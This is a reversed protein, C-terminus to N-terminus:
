EWKGLKIHQKGDQEKDKKSHWLKERKVRGTQVVIGIRALVTLAGGGKPLTGASGMGVRGRPLRERSLEQGQWDVDKVSASCVEVLMM